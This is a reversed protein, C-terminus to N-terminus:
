TTTPINSLNGENAGTAHEYTPPPLDPYDNFPFVPAPTADFGYNTLGLILKM